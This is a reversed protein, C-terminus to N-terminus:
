QHISLSFKIFDEVDLGDKGFGQKLKNEIFHKELMKFLLEEREMWAIIARDPDERASVDNLTDRAFESFRSTTPFSGGFTALMLQLYDEKVPEETVIGLSEIIYKGAYGIEVKETNFNVMKFKTAIQDIGFLWLLQQEATSNYPTIITILEDKKTKAVILLDNAEALPTVRNRSYYFRYESSRHSVNKRADYWTLTGSDEIIKDPDDTLYIFKSNFVKKETGFLERFSVPGNFEHQNSKESKVEVESLRKTVIGEFYKILNETM